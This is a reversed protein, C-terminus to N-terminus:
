RRYRGLHEDTNKIPGFWFNRFSGGSSVDYVERKASIVERTAIDFFVVYIAEGTFSVTTNGGRRTATPVSRSCVLRDIIFILGLGNTKIMKYSKVETAIDQASIHSKELEDEQGPKLIIQGSSAKKNRETVGGIDVLVRRGLTYAVREIREDLFLQNWRELMAPFLTDPSNFGFEFDTGGIMRVLSYDLGAWVVTDTAMLPNEVKKKWSGSSPAQAMTGNGAFSSLGVLLITATFLIKKM